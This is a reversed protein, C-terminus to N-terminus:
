AIVVVMFWAVLTPVMAIVFVVVMVLRLRPMLVTETNRAENVTGTARKFVCPQAFGESSQFLVAKGLRFLVHFARQLLDHSRFTENPVFRFGLQTEIPTM